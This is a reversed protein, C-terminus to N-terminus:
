QSIPKFLRGLRDAPNNEVPDVPPQRDPEAPKAILNPSLTVVPLGREKQRRRIDEVIASLDYNFRAAHDERIKRIEEAIPDLM